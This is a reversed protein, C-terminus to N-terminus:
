QVEELKRGIYEEVTLKSNMADNLAQIKAIRKQNINSLSLTYKDYSEEGQKFAEEVIAHNTEADSLAISQIKYIEDYMLYDNYAALISKRLQLMKAKQSNEAIIIKTQYQKNQVPNYFLQGLPFTLSLNYRPFFQSREAVDQSPDINFENLNGQFKFGDLWERKSIKLDYEAIELEKRISINDPHNLWATQVLKEQFDASKVSEPLVIKTYDIQQATLQSSLIFISFLIKVTTKM